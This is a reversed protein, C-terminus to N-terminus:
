IDLFSRGGGGAVMIRSYLSQPDDWNGPVLRFDSAGGGSGAAEDDSSDWTGIGGGNWSNPTNKKVVADHGIQGVYIYITDGEQM